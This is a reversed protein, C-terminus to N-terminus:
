ASLHAMSKNYRPTLPNDLECALESVRGDERCWRCIVLEIPARKCSVETNCYTCPRNVDEDDMVRATLAIGWKIGVPGSITLDCLWAAIRTRFYCWRLSDSEFEWRIRSGFFYYTWVHGTWKKRGAALRPVDRLLASVSSPYVRTRTDLTRLASM